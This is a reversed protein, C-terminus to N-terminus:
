WFIVVVLRQFKVIVALLVVKVWVLLALCVSRPVFPSLILLWTKLCAVMDRTCAAICIAACTVL